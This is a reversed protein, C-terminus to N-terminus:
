SRFTLTAVLCVRIAGADSCRGARYDTADDGPLISSPERNQIGHDRRGTVQGHGPDEGSYM